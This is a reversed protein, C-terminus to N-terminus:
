FRVKGDTTDQNAKMVYYKRIFKVGMFSFLCAMLLYVVSMLMGVASESFHVAIQSVIYGTLPSIMLLRVTWCSANRKAPFISLYYRLVFFVVSCYVFIALIILPLHLGIATFMMKQSVIFQCYSMGSLSIGIFRIYKSTHHYDYSNKCIMIVMWINILLAVPIAAYSFFKIENALLPFMCLIDLILLIFVAMGWKNERNIPTNFHKCIDDSVNKHNKLRLL